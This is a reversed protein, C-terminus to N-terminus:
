LKERKLRSYILICSKCTIAKVHKAQQWPNGAQVSLSFMQPKLDCQLSTCPTCLIHQHRETETERRRESDRERNGGVSHASLHCCNQTM